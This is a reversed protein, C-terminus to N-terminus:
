LRAITEESWTTPETDKAWTVKWVLKSHPLEVLSGLIFGYTGGPVLVTQLRSSIDEQTELSLDESGNIDLTVRADLLGKNDVTFVHLIVPDGESNPTNVSSLNLTLDKEM